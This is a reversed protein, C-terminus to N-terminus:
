SPPAISKSGTERLVRLVATWGRKQAVSELAMFLMPTAVGMLLGQTVAGGRTTVFEVAPMHPYLMGWAVGALMPHAWMTARMFGFFGGRTSRAKTWVRKKMNQGVFWFTLIQALAPWYPQATALMETISPIEM